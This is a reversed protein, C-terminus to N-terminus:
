PPNSGVVTVDGWALHVSPEGPTSLLLEGLSFFGFFALSVVAWLLAAEHPHHRDACVQRLASLVGPTIPFRTRGMRGARVHAVGAQVLKLRAMSLSLPPSPLGRAIQEFRVAALYTKISSAALGRAALHCVFCCLLHENTPLPVAVGYVECFHEYARFASQYASQSSEAIGQRCYFLVAQDLKAFHM